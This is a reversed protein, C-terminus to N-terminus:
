RPRGGVVTLSARQLNVGVMDASTFDVDVGATETLKADHLVASRFCTKTLVAKRLDASRLNAREFSAEKLIARDFRAGPLNAWSFDAGAADVNYFHAAVLDAKYFRAKQLGSGFWISGEGRAGSVDAEPLRCANFSTALLEAGRLDIGRGECEGFRVRELKAGFRAGDVKCTDFSCMNLHAGAFNAGTFTSEGFSALLGEARAFLADTFDSATARFMDLRVGDFRTGIASVRDFTASTLDVDTLDAGNLNTRCLRAGGLKAGKLNVGELNTEALIACQLDAGSLDVGRLDRDSLDRGQLDAGPGPEDPPPDDESYPKYHADTALIIPDTRLKVLAGDLKASAADRGEEPLAKKVELLKKEQERVLNGIPFVLKEGDRVPLRMGIGGRGGGRASEKLSQLVKAKMMAPDAGESAAAKAWTGDLQNIEPRMLKGFINKAVAVPPSNGDANELMAELEADTANELKKSSEAFEMFGAPFADKLGIPDAAFAELQALYADAPRPAEALPETVILGFAVDTLDEEKVPTIGRWTLYLSDDSLDAFLTDLRMVIERHTGAVDRVFVRVRLEPLRVSFLSRKPHLNVFTVEEDGRLYGELQQDPPASNFYTWDMDSAFCPARTDLWEQDYKKGLKQSRLKWGPSLPGFGAPLGHKHEAGDAYLINALQASAMVASRESRPPQYLDDGEGVLKEVHGKGVPNNLFGPGGYAHAYDVPISGIVTPETHKGGATHDVWVRHGVVQLTKKWDGVRFSVDCRVDSRHPPHCTGRLMVEAKPKFDAFDGPYLVAGAQNDDGEEYREGCVTGQGLQLSAEDLQRAADESTKRTKEILAAPIEESRVLALPRGHELRYRGRVVFAMEPSRPQRLAAKYGFLLGTDSKLRITMFRHALAEAKACGGCRQFPRRAPARVLWGSPPGATAPAESRRQPSLTRQRKTAFLWKKHKRTKPQPAGAARGADVGEVATGISETSGSVRGVAPWFSCCAKTGAANFECNCFSFNLVDFEVTEFQRSGHHEVFVLRGQLRLAVGNELQNVLMQPRRPDGFEADFTVGVGAAVVRERRLLEAWSPLRSPSEAFGTLVATNNNRASRKATAHYRAM